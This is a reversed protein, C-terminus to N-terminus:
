QLTQLQYPRDLPHLPPPFRHNPGPSGGRGHASPTGCACNRSQKKLLVVGNLGGGVTVIRDLSLWLRPM